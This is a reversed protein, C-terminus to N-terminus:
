PRGRNQRKPWEGLVEDGLDMKLTEPAAEIAKRAHYEADPWESARKGNSRM